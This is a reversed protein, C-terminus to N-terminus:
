YLKWENLYIASFTRDRRFCIVMEKTKTTNIRMDNNCSWQEVLDASDQIVSVMDQNCIEFITSDDVYKYIPCPTQLDNIHVLFHKPMSLTGQPVGGNPYAPNSVAEGIKVRQERDLVFAAMLRVLYAPVEMGTMLNLLIDHNILDFAKSYDLFLVRVFNGTVDISEYWKHLMEVLADTTCTGAMGGYQKDDTQPKVCVDVWKLVLLEFVKVIIPTLSIPRIDNEITVPPHKKSVPIITATKWLKPLVGERLSSNFLATVPTALLHSCDTLAWPPIRGTTKNVKNKDLALKTDSVSITFKVPLPEKIDFIPHTARLKPLNESISVFCANMRNVLTDMDVGTFANALGLMENQGGPSNGLLTKMHKWWERSSTAEISAIKSQYFQRRLKPAARNVQNRLRKAREVDGVMRALQRQRILHRFGDTVM